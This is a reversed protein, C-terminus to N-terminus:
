SCILVPKMRWRAIYSLRRSGHQKTLPWVVSALSSWPTTFFWTKPRCLRPCPCHVNGCVERAVHVARRRSAVGIAVAQLRLFCRWPILGVAGGNVPVWPQIGLSSTKPWVNDCPMPSFFWHATGNGERTVPVSWPVTAFRMLFYWGIRCKCFCTCLHMGSRPRKAPRSHAASPSWLLCVSVWLWTWSKFLKSGNPLPRAVRSYPAMCWRTTVFSISGWRNWYSSLSSGHSAHCKLRVQWLFNRRLRWRHYCCGHAAGINCATTTASLVLPQVSAM